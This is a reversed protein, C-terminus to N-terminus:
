FPTRDSAKFRSRRKAKVSLRFPTTTDVVKMDRFIENILATAIRNDSMMIKFATDTTAKVFCIPEELTRVLSKGPELFSHGERSV